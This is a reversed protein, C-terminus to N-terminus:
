LLFAIVTIPYASAFYHFGILHSLAPSYVSLPRHASCYTPRGPVSALPNAAQKSQSAVQLGKPSLPHQVLVDNTWTPFSATEGCDLNGGSVRM